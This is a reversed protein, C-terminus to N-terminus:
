KQPKPSPIEMELHQFLEMQDNNPRNIGSYRKGSIRTTHRQIQRLIQLARSPSHISGSAKLRSRMIRHLVLALFCILAHARIREWLPEAFRAYDFIRIRRLHLFTTMGAAYCIGPLTGQIIGRDFCSLMKRIKNHYRELLSAM